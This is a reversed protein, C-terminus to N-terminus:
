SVLFDIFPNVLDVNAMYQLWLWQGNPNLELFITEGSSTIGLDIAGFELGYVNMLKEIKREIAQELETQEHHIQNLRL